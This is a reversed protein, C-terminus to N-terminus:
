VQNVILSVVYSLIRIFIILTSFDEILMKKKGTMYMSFPFVTFAPLGEALVRRKSLRLHDECSLFGILTIFTPFSEALSYVKNLMLSNVCSFFRKYAIFTPFGETLM